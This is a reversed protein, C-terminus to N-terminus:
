LFFLGSIAALLVLVALVGFTNEFWGNTYKGLAAKNNALLLLLILLPPALLGTAVQSFFLAKIPDFGSIAIQVGVLISISIVEYFGKANNIKQSLGERWGLVGSLGLASSVALVPVALFGAGIIGIAFLVKAYPGAVPELAM